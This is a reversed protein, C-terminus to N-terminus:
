LRTRFDCRITAVAAAVQLQPSLGQLDSAVLVAPEQQFKNKLREYVEVTTM